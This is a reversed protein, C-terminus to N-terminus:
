WDLFVTEHEGQLHIDLRFRPLGDQEGDRRAVLTTRREEPLAALVPDDTNAEDELYARTWVPDLMGRAQVVLGLHPAQPTGDAASVRGPRVTTFSWTGSDFATKTRGFGTFGPHLPPETRTDLPHRYRGNPDAQWLEVLADEVAEGDGDLVRGVLVIHEGPVDPGAVVAEAEDHALIMSFYPGITQSPTQGPTQEPTPVPTQTASM